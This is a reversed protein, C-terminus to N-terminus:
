QKRMQATLAYNTLDVSDNSAYCILFKLFIWRQNIVINSVYVAAM